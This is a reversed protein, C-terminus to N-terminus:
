MSEGTAPQNQSPLQNIHTYFIECDPLMYYAVFVKNDFTAVPHKWLLLKYEKFGKRRFNLLTTNYHRCSRSFQFNKNRGQINAIRANSLDIM